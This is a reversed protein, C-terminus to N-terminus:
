ALALERWRGRRVLVLAALPALIAAVQVLGVVAAAITDPLGDVFLVLRTSLGRADDPNSLALGTVALWVAAAIALRALDAPHRVWTVRPASPPHPDTASPPPVLRRVPVPCVLHRQAYARAS